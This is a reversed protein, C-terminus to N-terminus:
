KIDPRKLQALVGEVAKPEPPKVLHHDFGAEATRRRDEQQGWGTLAALVVKELGPQQRLRRAVEYGDMGPMGIDLFVVDPAYDKTIELAAPGSHAVRVEHGQLKLLMALSDAADRNDDVVLLRHGSSLPLSPAVASEPGRKERLSESALPLRVVFESGNGLGASRAEVSGNHMEVLNKVLTLGIGLGGQSRTAAHDVQVFLEFIRPLVDPAIGIGDDRIRLVAGNGERTATLWIRGGPETYKAANTLLNGVVQALRVPDADLPLSENPLRVSLEHGQADILPQVTEVARAVVTALEVRERRLEIKGRMVRSVDLLDDVLRVLHHLQREMMDRSREVTGADVRPMKLIQLANRIPALPNRLEHALTALFEDKRRDADRLAEVAQKQDEIDTCTGFWKVIRGQGDRVPVGRTKFWRYQGDHRRIRYELDYDARDACAERWLAVTREVDDPHIVRGLWNLGLLEEVPVGTYAGWQSSLYDCQGDPLDTWVLNPLAEALSRWRRDGERQAEEAAKRETVDRFYVSIGDTAPYVHVEYWREHDPYYSTVSVTVRENAVRRYAREFESGALGPYEDWIVRGLLDGPTRDLLREAQPNVYTFRWDPAVAFFADTISEMISRIQRDSRRREEEAERRVKAMELHAQVRALLERTSFPKTLYDDAGAELGEVRAEEGARASLLLVPVSATRPDARVAKLLGFGDLGPMMVDSLILDPPREQAASLADSGDRVAEVDYLGALLRAIYDRMDANDDALLIRPRQGSSPQIQHFGDPSHNASDLPEVQPAIPGGDGPLWRLAEQVYPAAGLATPVPTSATGILDTPLHAKGLPVTVTFVSGRGSESEARVEGGHLRALEKVLALGIGTGEQTRGRAGEVRHFREFLLPVQDGPVGTGTDLVSLVAGDGARRLKVEIRGELTYKFANSVLNLVVKEWMDRDVYVPESLPPCDVVLELGAKECASRFNSALDATLTALDVPEYSARVRGAEIRSFDLLTNVLKQLRLANRHAVELWARHRAPPPEGADALVDEVPGLMLTLPTRFEHSVNSFFATKARDLEALAEARKRRGRTPM